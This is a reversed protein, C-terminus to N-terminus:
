CYVEYASPDCALAWLTEWPHLVALTKNTTDNDILLGHILDQVTVNIHSLLVSPM